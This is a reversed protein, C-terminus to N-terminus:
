LIGVGRPNWGRLCSLKKRLKVGMRERELADMHSHTGIAGMVRYSHSQPSKRSTTHWRSCFKLSNEIDPHLGRGFFGRSKWFEYFVYAYHKYVLFWCWSYVQGVGVLVLM